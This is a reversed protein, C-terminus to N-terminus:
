NSKLQHPVGSVILRQKASTSLQAICYLASFPCFFDPHHISFAVQFFKLFKQYPRQQVNVGRIQKYKWKRSSLEWVSNFCLSTGAMRKQTWQSKKKKDDASISPSQILNSSCFKRSRYCYLHIKELLSFCSDGNNSHKVKRWEMLQTKSRDYRPSFETWFNGQSGQMTRQTTTEQYKIYLVHAPSHYFDLHWNATVRRSVVM